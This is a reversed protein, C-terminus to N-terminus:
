YRPGITSVTEGYFPAVKALPAHTPRVALHGLPVRGRGNPRSDAHLSLDFDPERALNGVGGGTPYLDVTLLTAM